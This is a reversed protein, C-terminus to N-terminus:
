ACQLNVDHYGKQIKKRYVNQVCKNAEEVNSFYMTLIRTPSHFASNGYERIVIYDGFLTPMLNIKYYRERGTVMTRRLSFRM